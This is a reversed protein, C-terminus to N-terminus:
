CKVQEREVAHGPDIRDKFEKHGIQLATIIHQIRQGVRFLIQQHLGLILIVNTAALVFRVVQAPIIRTVIDANALYGANAMSVNNTQLAHKEVIVVTQNMMAWMPVNFFVM